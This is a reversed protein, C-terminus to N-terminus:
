KATIGRRELEQLTQLDVHRAKARSVVRPKKSRSKEKLRQSVSMNTSRKWARAPLWVRRTM